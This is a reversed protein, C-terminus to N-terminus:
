RRSDLRRRPLKETEPPSADSWMRFKMSASGLEIVEGDVLQHPSALKRRGLFTGNRSGLDELTVADATVRIRAHRRSVGSADVWITCGPDRGVVNDGDVLAFTHDNWVLWCRSSRSSTSPHSGGVRSATLDAAVGSFAYGKGHSTRIFRSDRADDRIARRIEAIVVNLNAEQVFKREWVRDFMEAKTVVAPRRELLLQLVDFAKPSLHVPDGGDLLERTDSDV